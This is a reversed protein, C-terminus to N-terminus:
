KAVHLDLDRALVAAGLRLFSDSPYLTVGVVGARTTRADSELRILKSRLYRRDLPRKASKLGLQLLKAFLLLPSADLKLEISVRNPAM